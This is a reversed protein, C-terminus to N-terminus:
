LVGSWYEEFSDFDDFVLVIQSGAVALLNRLLPSLQVKHPIQIVDWSLFPASHPFYSIHISSPRGNM